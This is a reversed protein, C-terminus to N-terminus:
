DISLVKINEDPYLANVYYLYSYGIADLGTDFNGIRRVAEGMGGAIYNDTVTRLPRDGMVLEEMATQSGSGHPRQYAKIEHRAARCLGLASTKLARSQLCGAPPMEVARYSNKNKEPFFVRCFEM